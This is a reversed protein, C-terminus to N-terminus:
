ARKATPRITPDSNILFRYPAPRLDFFASLRVCLDRLIRLPRLLFLRSLIQRPLKRRSPANPAKCKGQKYKEEKAVKAYKRSKQTRSDANM